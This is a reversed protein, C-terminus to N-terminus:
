EVIICSNKKKRTQAIFKICFDEARIQNRFYGVQLRYFVGRKGLDVRQIFYKLNLFLQPYKRNLDRWYANASDSSKFAALQVKSYPKKIKINEAVSITNIERKINEKKINNETINSKKIQRPQATKPTEIIKIDREIVKSKSNGVINDYVTKEINDIKINAASNRVKIEFDPAKITAIEKNDPNRSFYYASITILSFCLISVLVIIIKLPKATLFRLGRKEKGIIYGFDENDM